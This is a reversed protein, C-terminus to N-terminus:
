HHEFSEIIASTLKKINERTGDELQKLTIEKNKVKLAFTYALVPKSYKESKVIESPAINEIIPENLVLNCFDKNTFLDEIGKCNKIKQITKRAENEDNGFLDRTLTKLVGRGQNEDDVFVSFKLGWGNFMNALAPIKNAGTAAIFHAKQTIGLLDWFSSIYYYGSMEELIVNHKKQIVNQHSFDSGIATLIPSLTDSSAAGLQHAEIIETPTEIDDNKRQIAYVRYLKDHEILTPSHTSYTIPIEKSLLNILKLVDKQANSHLNAGPEDLFFHLNKKLKQSAKLQLYFSIFWRVGTSRQKPHLKHLGDSVWFILYPSGAKESKSNDHHALSFEIKIKNKHGITQNWFEKLDQNISEIARTIKSERARNSLKVLEKVQIDAISLLNSAAIQGEGVLKHKENIDISDPLLGSDSKFLTYYPAAQYIASAALHALNIEQPDIADGDSLTFATAPIELEPEELYTDFKIEQETSSENITWTFVIQTFEGIKKFHDTIKKIDEPAAEGILHEEIEKISFEVQFRVEPPEAGYRFDDYTVNQDSFSRCLAELIASKGSENQGVLVTVGDPSFSRWETDIISRFNKIRFKTIKM